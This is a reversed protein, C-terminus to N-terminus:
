AGAAKGTSFVQVGNRFACFEGPEMSVWRKDNLLPRTAIVGISKEARKQLQLCDSPDSGCSLVEGHARLILRHLTGRGYLDTYAILTEGDSLLMNLKSPKQEDNFTRRNHGILFKWFDLLDAEGWDCIGRDEIYDLIYCFLRESDTGGVPRYRGSLFKRSLRVTGNHAFSYERGM